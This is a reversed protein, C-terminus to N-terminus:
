CMRKVGATCAVVRHDKQDSIVRILGDVYIDRNAVIFIRVERHDQGEDSLGALTGASIENM